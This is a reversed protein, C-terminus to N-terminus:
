TFHLCDQGPKSSTDGHENKIVIVMVGRAKDEKYM